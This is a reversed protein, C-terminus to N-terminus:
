KTMNYKEIVKENMREVIEDFISYWKIQIYFRDKEHSPNYNLCRNKSQCILSGFHVATSYKNIKSLIIIEIDERGIWIFDNITGYVLADIHRKSNKGCLVFREIAKLVLEKRNFEKNIMDIKEQNKIKYEAVSERIRGKGTVTGDAFHYKLYEIVNEKSVKNEILFNIFDNIKETHVSNRSGKKISICKTINNIKIFIDTKEICCNKWSKIKFNEDVSKYLYEILERFLPNVESIKKNNLYQVFEKENKYGDNMYKM